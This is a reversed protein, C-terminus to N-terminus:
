RRTVGLAVVVATADEVLALPLDPMGTSRAVRVRYTYGAFTGILAGTAGLAGGIAPSHGVARCTIAGALAGCGLRGALAPPTTRDPTISLKDGVFEGVAALGFGALGARTAIWRWQPPAEALSAYPGDPQTALALTALGTMSRLGSVMGLILARAYTTTPDATRADPM